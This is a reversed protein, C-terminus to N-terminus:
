NFDVLEVDFILTAKPPIIGPYGKEGYALPYPILLRRMEGKKMGIIGLDWGKIVEGKGIVFGIPEGRDRSSDFKKGDALVGTYHVKVRDGVKIAEGTGAKLPVYMLGSETKLADPNKDMMKKEFAAQYEKREAEQRALLKNRAADISAQDTKFAKADTGRRIIILHNIRDGQHIENVVDQGSVVKGFVTHKLDLWPTEKHTIFFQSGNTNPGSNAMSLVGPGDHTLSPHFEDAFQYGPGGRGTGEPDGGQIMFNPIVRHFTLGDYFKKGAPQNSKKTGEALGVFNAVTNPVRKYYLEALITGRNTEFRAYIGDTLEGADAAARSLAPLLLLASFLIAAFLWTFSFYRNRQGISIVMPM